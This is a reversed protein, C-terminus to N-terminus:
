EPPQSVYELDTVQAGCEMYLLDCVDLARIIEFTEVNNLSNNEVVCV